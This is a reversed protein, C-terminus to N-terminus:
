SWNAKWTKVVTPELSFRSYKFDFNGCSDSFFKALERSLDNSHSMRRAVLPLPTSTISFEKASSFSCALM